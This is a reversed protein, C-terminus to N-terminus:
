AGLSIDAVRHKTKSTIHVEGIPRQADWAHWLVIRQRDPSIAAILESSAILKKLGRYPSLYESVLPDDLGICDIPGDSTALLLRIEGLWPLAAAASIRASRRRVDVIQLDNADLLTLTGDHHVIILMPSSPIIAVIPSPSQSPLVTRSQRERVIAHDGASYLIKGDHFISLNRPGNETFITSPASPDALNWAIVGAEGHTAWIQEASCAVSNFGLQSQINPCQFLTVNRPNEVAALMVGTQAGILLKEDCLQVSRLPGLTTPLDILTPAPAAASPDFSILQSGAVAWLTRPPTSKSSALLLSQLMPGRDAPSLQDLIKGASLQPNTQRLSQFQKLLEGARQLHELQAANQEVSRARALEELRKRQLSPSEVDLNFPPLFDLGASFALPKMAALAAPTWASADAAVDAANRQAALQTLTNKLTRAFHAAITDATARNDATLFIEAFMARDASNDAVRISCSFQVDLTHSDASLLNTFSWRVRLPAPRIEMIGDSRRALENESLSM